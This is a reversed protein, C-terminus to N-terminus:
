NERLISDLGARRVRSTFILAATGSVVLSLPIASLLYLPNITMTIQIINGYFDYHYLLFHELIVSLAGSFASSILALVSYYSIVFVSYRGWTWGQSILLGAEWKRRSAGLYSVLFVVAVTVALSGFQLLQYLPISQTELSQIAILGAQDYDVCFKQDGGLANRTANVVGQVDSLTKAKVIMFDPNGGFTANYLRQGLKQELFTSNWLIYVERTLPNFAAIGAITANFKVANTGNWESSGIMFSNYGNRNFTGLTNDNLVFGPENGQPIHGQILLILGTPYGNEGGIVASAIAALVTSGGTSKSSGSGLTFTTLMYTYNVDIPYVAQVGPLALTEAPLNKPLYANGYTPGINCGRVVIFTSTNEGYSVLGDHLSGAASPVVIWSVLGSTLILVLAVTWLRDRTVKKLVLLNM